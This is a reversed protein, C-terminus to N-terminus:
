CPNRADPGYEYRRDYEIGGTREHVHAVSENAHFPYGARNIGM